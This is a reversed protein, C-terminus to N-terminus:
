AQIVYSRIRLPETKSKHTRIIKTPTDIEARKTELIFNKQIGRTLIKNILYDFLYIEQEM